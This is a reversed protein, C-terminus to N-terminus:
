RRHCYLVTKDFASALAHRRDASCNGVPMVNGNEFSLDFGEAETLDFFFASM